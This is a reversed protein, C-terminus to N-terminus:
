RFVLPVGNINTVTLHRRDNRKRDRDLLKQIVDHAAPRPELKECGTLDIEKWPADLCLMCDPLTCLNHCGKLRLRALAPMQALWDPLLTILSDSLDLTHLSQLRGSEVPSFMQMTPLDSAIKIKLSALSSPTALMFEGLKFSSYGPLPVLRLVSAKYSFVRTVVDTVFSRTLGTLSQDESLNRLISRWASGGQALAPGFGVAELRRRFVENLIAFREHTDPVPADIRRGDGIMSNLIAVRDADVTAEGKQLVASFAMALTEM